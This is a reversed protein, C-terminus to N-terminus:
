FLTDAIRARPDSQLATFRLARETGRWVEITRPLGEGAIPSAFDLFRVDWATGGKDKWRLRAPRFNEKYVWFQPQGEAPDGLVYAVEGGFRALGTTRTQIGLGQLYTDLAERTEAADGGTRMALLPCLAQIGETMAPLRPGENRVRGTSSVAAAQTGDQARAEWRCRGPARVYLTADMALESRESPNNLANGAEKAAAGYFTMSGDVKTGSLQLEERAAVLRRLISGGPLVYAGASLSVLVGALVLARKVPHQATYSM